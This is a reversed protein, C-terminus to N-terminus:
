SQVESASVFIVVGKDFILHHDAEEHVAADSLNLWCRALDHQRHWLMAGYVDWLAKVIDSEANCVCHHRSIREGLGCGRRM